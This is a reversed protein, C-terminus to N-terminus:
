NMVNRVYEINRQESFDYHTQQSAYKERVLRLKNNKKEADKLFGKRTPCHM